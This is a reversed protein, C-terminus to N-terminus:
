QGSPPTSVTIRDSLISKSNFNDMVERASSFDGGRRLDKTRIQDGPKKRKKKGAKRPEHVRMTDYRDSRTKHRAKKAFHYQGGSNVSVISGESGMHTRKKGSEYNSETAASVPRVIQSVGSQVQAPDQDNCLGLVSKDQVLDRLRKHEGRSKRPLTRSVQGNHSDRSSVRSPSPGRLQHGSGPRSRAKSSSEKSRPENHRSTEIDELWTDVLSQRNGDHAHEHRTPWLPLSGRQDSGLARSTHTM